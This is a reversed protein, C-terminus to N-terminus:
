KTAEKTLVTVGTSQFIIEHQYFGDCVVITGQVFRPVPVTEQFNPDFISTIIQAVFKASYQSVYVDDFKLDFPAKQEILKQIDMLM